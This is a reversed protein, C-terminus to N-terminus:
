SLKLICYGYNNGTNSASVNIFVSNTAVQKGIEVNDRKEVLEVTKGQYKLPLPIEYIGTTSVDIFLYSIANNDIIASAIVGSPNAKADGYKRFSIAGFTQGANIDGNFDQSDNTYAMPYITWYDGNARMRWPTNAYDLRDVWQQPIYGHALFIKNTSFELIEIGRDIAGGDECDESKFWIGVDGLSDFNPILTPLATSPARFDFTVRDAAPTSDTARLGTTKDYVVPLSKPLYYKLTGSLNASNMRKINLTFIRTVKTNKLGTNNEFIICEGGGTFRYVFSRRVLHDIANDDVTPNSSWRGVNAVVYDLFSLPDIIDYEDIFDLSNGIYNGPTSIIKGDIVLQKKVSVAVPYFDYSSVSVVSISVGSGSITDGANITYSLFGTGDHGPLVVIGDSLLRVAYITNNNCSLTKGIISYNLGSVDCSVKKAIGSLGHNGGLNGFKVFPLPCINDGETNIITEIDTQRNIISSGNFNMVPNASESLETAWRISNKINFDDSLISTVSLSNENVVIKLQGEDPPDIMTKLIGDVFQAGINGDKDTIYLGPEICKKLTIDDNYRQEGIISALVDGLGLADLIGDILQAGINGDEDTVFLGPTDTKKFALGEIDTLAEDIDDINKQADEIKNDLAEGQEISFAGTAEKTWTGNYQLIAVEGEGLVINNFNSYIGANSALYFINQDPTGPNTSPTAIGMFQYGAGLSDILSLLSQQLLAGTIENNGNTTIVEQIAAKLNAYNAM